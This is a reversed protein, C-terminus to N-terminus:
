GFGFHHWKKVFSQIKRQSISAFVAIEAQISLLPFYNFCDRTLFDSSTNPTKGVPNPFDSTKWKNVSTNSKASHSPGGKFPFAIVITMVGSFARKKATEFRRSTRTKRTNAAYILNPNCTLYCCATTILWELSLEERDFPFKISLSVNDLALPKWWGDLM